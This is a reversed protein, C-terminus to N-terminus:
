HQKFLLVRVRLGQWSQPPGAPTWAAVDEGKRRSVRALNFRGHSMNTAQAELGSKGAARLQQSHLGPPFRKVLLFRTDVGVAARM